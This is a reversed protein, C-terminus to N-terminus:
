RQDVDSGVKLILLILHHLSGSTLMNDLGTDNRVAASGLRNKPHDSFRVPSPHIM